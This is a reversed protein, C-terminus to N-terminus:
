LSIYKRIIPGLSYTLSAPLKRWVNIALEKTINRNNSINLVNLQRKNNKSLGITILYLINPIAGWQEKFKYTGTGPTSRGFDFRKYGNECSYKLFDWYLLMNPSLANYKRLSSAWPISVTDGCFLILGAAVPQKGFYVVGIRSRNGYEELVSRFWELAHVPSGLDRMNECFVNYFDNL